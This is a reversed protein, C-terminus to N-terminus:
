GYSYQSVPNYRKDISRMGRNVARALVENDETYLTANVNIPRDGGEAMAQTIGNVILNALRDVDIGTGVGGAGAIANAIMSMSKKNRLPLAAEPGAEGFGQMVTPKTFLGGAANWQIKGTLSGFLDTLKGSMSGWWTTNSYGKKLNVKVTKEGLNKYDNIMSTYNGEPKAKFTKTVPMPSVFKYDKMLGSFNGSETGKFDKIVDEKKKYIYKEHKDTFGGSETAKYNKTAEVPQNEAYMKYRKTFDGSETANYNTSKDYNKKDTLKAYGDEFNDTLKADYTITVTKNKGSDKEAKSGGQISTYQGAANMGSASLAQQNATQANAVTTQTSPALNQGQLTEPTVGNKEAVSRLWEGFALTGVMVSAGIALTGVSLTSLGSAIASAGGSTAAGTAAGTGGSALGSFKGFIAGQVATGVLMSSFKLGFVAAAGGLVYGWPIEDFIDKLGDSINDKNEKLADVLGGIIASGAAKLGDSIESADFTEFFGTLFSSFGDRISEKLSGDEDEEFMSKLTTGLGTLFTGISGGVDGWQVGEIANITLEKLKAGLDDFHFTNVWGSFINWGVMFKDALLTGLAGADWTDLASNMATAFDIGFNKFEFGTLWEDLTYTITNLGNSFTEGLLPWDISDMMSNVTEQFPHIFGFVKDKWNDWSLLDNLRELGGNLGEAIVDGLETWDHAMFANKIKQGWASIADALESGDLDSADLFSEGFLDGLGGVGGGGGSGGGGSGASSTDKALQNLEDFPLVSLQKALEKASGAAGGLGSGSDGIGSLSDSADDAYGALENVVGKAAGIAKGFITFMFTRFANAATILRRILTNIWSIAPAVASILGQGITASLVQFNLSLLRVQNAFTQSTKAFDGAAYQAANMLYDYRVLMQTAQDMSRWSQNIGMTLAHAELNAVNMNIGLSRLPRNMGALASQIKTMAEDVEIDYFSALDGALQVLNMSMEAAKDRMGETANFGSSVFMAMIRGAYQRAGLESVGFADITTDAWKYILGSLDEYGNKLDGFMTDIVNEVEVISAGTTVADKIWDFIGRIGYFPVVARFLNTFSLAMRDVNDSHGPILGLASFFNGIASVGRGGLSISVDLLKKMASTTAEASKKFMNFSSSGGTGGSTLSNMAKGTKAGAMALNGLGQITQAINANIAPAQSMATLFDKVAATLNQLGQASKDAKAGANALQSIATVFSNISADVTGIGQFATVANKLEPTLKKLGDASETTKAGANALRAIASVFRNLGTNIDGLKTLDTIGSVIGTFASADFKSMDVSALRKLADVFQKMGTDQLKVGNMQSIADSISKFRDAFQPLQGVDIGQLADSINNRLLQTNVNLKVPTSEYVKGTAETIAKQIQQEFRVQDIDLDLPIKDNSEAMRKTTAETLLERIRDGTNKAADEMAAFLDTNGSFDQLATNAEIIKDRLYGFMDKESMGWLDFGDIINQHRQVFESEPDLIQDIGTGGKKMIRLLGNDIWSKRMDSEMSSPDIHLSNVERLFDLYDAQLGTLEAKSIRSNKVISDKLVEMGTAGDGGEAMDKAIGKIISQFEKVGSSDVKFEQGLDKAIQGTYRSIDKQAQSTAYKLRDVRDAGNIVLDLHITKDKLNSLDLRQLRELAALTKDMNVTSIKSLSNGFHSLFSTAGSLNRASSAATKLAASLDGLQRIASSADSGIGLQLEDIQVSM